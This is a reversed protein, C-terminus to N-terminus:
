GSTWRAGKWIDRLDEAMGRWLKAAAIWRERQRGVSRAAKEDALAARSMYLAHKERALEHAKM